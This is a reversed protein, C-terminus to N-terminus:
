AVVLWTEAALDSVLGYGAGDLSAAFAGSFRFTPPEIGSVPEWLDECRVLM